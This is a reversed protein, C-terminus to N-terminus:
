AKSRIVRVLDIIHLVRGLFVDRKGIASLYKFSQFIQVLWRAPILDQESSNRSLVQVFINLSRFLAWILGGVVLIMLGFQWAVTFAFGVLLVM